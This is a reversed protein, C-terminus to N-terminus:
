KKLSKNHANFLEHIHEDSEIEKGEVIMQQWYTMFLEGKDDLMIVRRWSQGTATDLMYSLGDQNSYIRYRDVDSAIYKYSFAAVLILGAYLFFEKLKEPKNTNEAM